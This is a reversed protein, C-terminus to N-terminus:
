GLMTLSMAQLLVLHHAVHKKEGYGDAAPYGIPSYRHANVPWSKLVIM